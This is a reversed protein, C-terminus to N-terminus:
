VVSFISFFPFTLLSPSITWKLYILGNRDAPLSLSSGTQSHWENETGKTTTSLDYINGDKFVEFDSKTLGPIKPNTELTWVNSEYCQDNGTSNCVESGVQPDASYNQTVQISEKLQNIAYDHGVYPLPPRVGSSDIIYVNKTVSDNFVSQLHIPDDPNTVDLISFGKGGRGYPVMLITHWVPGSDNPGDFYMDHVVPSGDVGYIANSGGGTSKNLAKDVMTPLNGMLLPPIFAWEEKGNESNVAHLMGDNGGVYIMEKRNALNSSKAWAGYGKISRWYAEQSKNTYATNADPAGVVLLESHYFDGLYIKNGQGDKRAEILNCDNDYDFYDEGRLFNILGIVDDDNGDAVGPATGACRRTSIPTGSVSHFDQVEYNFSRLSDAIESQSRIQELEQELEAQKEDYINNIISYQVMLDDYKNPNPNEM